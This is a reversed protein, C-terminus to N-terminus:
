YDHNVAEGRSVFFHIGPACETWRDNVFGQRPKVTKGVRYLFDLDFISSVLGDYKVHEDELIEGNLKQIQLVVAESARCKRGTGSSRKAHEPIMLKVICRCWDDFSPKHNWEWHEPRIVCKKWAIFSGEEPCVYPIHPYKSSEEMCNFDSNQWCTTESVRSETFDCDSFTVSRFDAGFLFSSHFSTKRIHADRFKADMLNADEFSCNFICAREFITEHLDIGKFCCNSFSARSFDFYRLQEHIGEIESFNVDNFTGRFYDEDNFIGEEIQARLWLKHQEMAILIEEATHNHM